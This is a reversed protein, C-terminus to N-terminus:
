AIAGGDSARPGRRARAPRRRELIVEVGGAPSVTIMRPSPRAPRDHVLRMRFRRLLAGLMIVMEQEAFSAGLCRKFGGGFPLFEHPAFSRELFREPRFRDPEPYLEPNRHILPLGMSVGVGVPLEWGCVVLPKVLMRTLFLLPPHLRLTENVVAQLYTDDGQDAAAAARMAVAPHRGLRHCAWSIAVATTEYGAVVMDALRVQIVRDSLPRGQEDTVAMLDGLMGAGHEGRARRRVLEEQVLRRVGEIGEAARRYPPFWRSRLLKVYMLAPGTRDLGLEVVHRFRAAQEPTSPGLVAHLIVDLTVRKALTHAEVVGPTVRDLHQDVVEEMVTRLARIRTAHFSPSLQKRVVRHQDGGKLFISEDTLLQETAEIRWPVLTDRGAALIARIGDPHGTMVTGPTGPMRLHIPDGYRAVIAGFVGYPDILYRLFWPVVNRPGPPLM